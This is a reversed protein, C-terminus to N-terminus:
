HTARACVYVRVCACVCTWPLAEVGGGVPGIVLAAVATSESPIARPAAAVGPVVVEGVPAIEKLVDRIVRVAARGSCAAITTTHTQTHTHSHM